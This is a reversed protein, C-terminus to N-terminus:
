ILNMSYKMFDFISGVVNKYSKVLIMLLFRRKGPQMTTGDLVSTNVYNVNAIQQLYTCKMRSIKRSM